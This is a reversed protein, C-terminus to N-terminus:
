SALLQAEFYHNGGADLFSRTLQMGSANLHTEYSNQGLSQSMIGTTLDHWQCAQVPATFLFRGGPLLNKAVRAILDIQDGESLLFLLGVAVVADFQLGFFDSEQVKACRVPVAPFRRKFEDLLRASSDIAWVRLGAETLVRTVPYGAGCALELVMSDRRLTRGWAQMEEVGVTSADRAQM